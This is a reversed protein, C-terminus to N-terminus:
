AARESITRARPGGLTTSTPTSAGDIVIENWPHRSLGTLGVHTVLSGDPELRLPLGEHGSM